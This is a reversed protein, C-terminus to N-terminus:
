RANLHAKVVSYVIYLTHFSPSRVQSVEDRFTRQFASYFSNALLPRNYFSRTRSGDERRRRRSLKPYNMGDGIIFDKYLDVDGGSLEATVYPELFDVSENVTSIRESSYSNPPSSPQQNDGLRVVMIQVYSFNPFTNHLLSENM